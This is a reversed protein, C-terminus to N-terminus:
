KEIEKIRNQILLFVLGNQLIRSIITPVTQIIELLGCSTESNNSCKFINIPNLHEFEFVIHTIEFIWFTMSIYEDNKAFTKM